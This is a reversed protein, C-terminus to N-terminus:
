SHKLSNSQITPRVFFPEARMLARFDRATFLDVEHSKLRVLAQTRLAESSSRSRHSFVLSLNVTDNSRHRGAVSSLSSSESLPHSDVEHFLRSGGVTIGNKKRYVHDNRTEVSLCIMTYYSYAIIFGSSWIPSIDRHPDPKVEFVHCDSYQLVKFTPYLGNINLQCRTRRRASSPEGRKLARLHSDFILDEVRRDSEFWQEVARRLNPPLSSVCRTESFTGYAM